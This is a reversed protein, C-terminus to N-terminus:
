LSTLGEYSKRIGIKLQDSRVWRFGVTMIWELVTLRRVVNVLYLFGRTKIGNAGRKFFTRRFMKVSGIKIEGGGCEVINVSLLPWESPLPSFLLGGFDGGEDLSFGLFFFEMALVRIEEGDWEEIKEVGSGEIERWPRRPRSAM